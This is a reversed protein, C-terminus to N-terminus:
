RDSVRGPATAGGGALPLLGALAAQAVRVALDDRVSGDLGPLHLTVMVVHDGRRAVVGGGFRARYAEDGVGPLERRLLSIRRFPEIIATPAWVVQVHGGGGTPDTAGGAPGTTRYLASGGALAAPHPPAGPDRAMALGAAASVTADDPLPPQGVGAGGASAGTPPGPPSTAAGTTTVAPPPAPPPGADSPSPTPAATLSAAMTGVTPAIGPAPTLTAPTTTLGAVPGTGGGPAATAPGTTAETWAIVELDRVHRLWRTVRARVTDGPQPVVRKGFRWARIRDATGDDVALHCVVNDDNVRVRKRLVRGEVVRRGSVADALSALVLWVGRLAGGTVMLLLVAATVIAPLRAEGSVEDLFEGALNGEGTTVGPALVFLLIPVTLVLHVVGLLFALGPHLGYGPPVGRPYRVRVPRWRGGVSSWAERESEAGLPVAAVVGHAVGLATGQALLHDWIAVAAPPQEAFLPDEQLLERLGLWRAAAERGAPTDREGDLKGVVGTLLGFTVVGMTAVGMARDGSDYEDDPDDPLTSLALAVTVAVPVAAVVLLSKLGAPWRAHSLGRARADRAVASRFRRWWRKSQDDPGTTLAEGPVRGEPTQAALGRLHDLVMTEYDTLPDHRGGRRARLSVFTREGVMDIAVHGRAALDVLTAAIAEHGMDWDTALLNVVAPPEDGQVELTAPGPAVKRPDVWAACLGLLALWALAAGAAVAWLVPGLEGWRDLLGDEAAVVAVTTWTTM